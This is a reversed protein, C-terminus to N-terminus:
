LILLLRLGITNNSNNRKPVTQKKPVACKGKLDPNTKKHCDLVCENYYTNGNNGCVGNYFLTCACDKPTTFIDELLQIANVEKVALNQVEVCEGETFVELNRNFKKACNLECNNSYTQGDSGCVPTYDLTVKTKM